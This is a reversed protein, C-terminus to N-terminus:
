KKQQGNTASLKERKGTKFEIECHKLSNRIHQEEGVKTGSLMGEFDDESIELANEDPLYITEKGLKFQKVKGGIKLFEEYNYSHIVNEVSFKMEDNEVIISEKEYVLLIPEAKESEKYLRYGRNSFAELTEKKEEHFEEEPIELFYREWSDVDNGRRSWFSCKAIYRCQEKKNKM